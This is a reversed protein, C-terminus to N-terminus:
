PEMYFKKVDMSGKWEIYYTYTHIYVNYLMYLNNYSPEKISNRHFGKNPVEKELPYTQSLIQPHKYQKQVFETSQADQFRTYSMEGFRGSYNCFLLLMQFISNTESFCSPFSRYYDWLFSVSEFWNMGIVRRSHESVCCLSSQSSCQQLQKRARKNNRRGKSHVDQM